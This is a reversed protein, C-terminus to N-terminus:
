FPAQFVAVMGAVVRVAPVRYQIARSTGVPLPVTWNRSRVVPFVLWVLLWVFRVVKGAV